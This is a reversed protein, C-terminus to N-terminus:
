KLQQEKAFELEFMLEEKAAKMDPTELLSALKELKQATTMKGPGLNAVIKGNKSALSVTNDDSIEIVGMSLAHSVHTANTQEFKLAKEVFTEPDIKALSNLATVRSAMTDAYVAFLDCLANIKDENYVYGKPGRQYFQAVFRIAEALYLDYENLGEIEKDVEVEEYIANARESRDPNSKNYFAEKIYSFLGIFSGENVVTFEGRDFKIKDELSARAPQLNLVQQTDFSIETQEKIYRIKENYFIKQKKGNRVVEKVGRRYGVNPIFRALPADLEHYHETGKSGAPTNNLDLIFGSPKRNVLRIHLVEPKEEEMELVDVDEDYQKKTAM